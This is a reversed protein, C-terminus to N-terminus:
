ASRRQQATERYSMATSGTWRRFARHFSQRNAFGLQLSIDYIPRLTQSLDRLALAKRIEDLLLRYSTNERELRRALTRVSVGLRRAVFSATAGRLDIEASLMERVRSAYDDCSPLQALCANAQQELFRALTPDAGPLPTALAHAPLVVQTSPMDFRLKCKFQREHLTLDQPQPFMFHIELPALEPNRAIRRATDLWTAILFEYAAEHMVLSSDFWLRVFALDGRIELGMHTGDILLRTCRAGCKLADGFTAKCRALYETTGIQETTLQRAAVLGIDRMGTRAVCASLLDLAVQLPARTEPAEFQLRSLGLSANLRAILEERERPPALKVFPWVLRISLQM